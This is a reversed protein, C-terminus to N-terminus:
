DWRGKEGWGSPALLRVKEYVMFGWGRARSAYLDKREMKNKVTAAGGWKGWVTNMVFRGKRERM